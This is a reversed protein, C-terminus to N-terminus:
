NRQGETWEVPIVEGTMAERQHAEWAEAEVTFHGIAHGDQVLPVLLPLGDPPDDFISAIVDRVYRGAADSQRYVQRPVPCPQLACGPLAAELPEGARDVCWAIPEGPMVLTGPQMLALTGASSDVDVAPMVLVPDDGGGPWVIEIAGAYRAHELAIGADRVIEEIGVPTVADRWVADLRDVSERVLLAARDRALPRDAAALSTLEGLAFTVAQLNIVSVVSDRWRDGDEEPPVALSARAFEVWRALLATWTLTEPHLPRMGPNDRCYRLSALTRV